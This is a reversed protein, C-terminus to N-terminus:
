NGDATAVTADVPPIGYYDILYKAMEAFAPAAVEESWRGQTPKDFRALIVFQPDPLPGYGVFSVITDAGAYSEEGIGATGSKGALRYGPVAASPMGLEVAAGLMETLEDAVAASVVRRVPAPRRVETRDAYRTEAVIYPRMLVGHNALAGYAAAVQLPTASLGQGYANAGLDSMSWYKNGPVRMVGAAEGWLDVGTIESFGFKRITEYFRTPGMLSAVYAAGVNRSYALLETMTTVGHPRLDSNFIRRGGVIIEGRDDYTDTSRVVRAELAAAMTLPKFVSGPEYQSSIAGNVFAAPSDVEWYREPSYGPYDAMALIGGTRPDLVILMGDVAMHEETTAALVQEAKQQINRDLTLLLDAGDQAPEYGREDVLIQQGWLDSIGRWAGEVGRLETDWYQELGYQAEGNKMTMRFGLVSSALKDDPYVRGFRAELRLASKSLDQVQMAVSFPVDDALIVYESDTRSLNAAMEDQPKGLLTALVPILEEREQKGLLRPSASLRYSVTSAVLYQGSADLINGRTALIRDSLNRVGSQAEDLLPQPLLMWQAVRGVLVVGLLVFITGLMVIRRRQGQQEVEPM